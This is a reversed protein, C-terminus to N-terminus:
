VTATTKTVMSAAAVLPDVAPAAASAVAPAMMATAVASGHARCFVTIGEAMRLCGDAECTRGGGHLKCRKSSGKAGKDCNPQCLGPSSLNEVCFLDGYASLISHCMLYEHQRM